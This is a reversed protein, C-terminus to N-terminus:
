ITIERGQITEIMMFLEADLEQTEVPVAYQVITCRNQFGHIGIEQEPKGLSMFMSTAGKKPKPISDLYARAYFQASLNEVTCEYEITFYGMGSPCDAEISEISTKKIEEFEERTVHQLAKKQYQEDAFQKQVEIIPEIMNVQNIYCTIEDGGEELSFHLKQSKGRELKVPLQVIFSRCSPGLTLQNVEGSLEPLKEYADRLRLEVLGIHDWDLQYFCSDESLRWGNDMMQQFFFYAQTNEAQQALNGGSGGQLEFIDNGIKIRNIHLAKEDKRNTDDLMRERNTRDERWIPCEELSPQQELICFYIGEPKRGMGVIHIWEDNICVDKGIIRVEDLRFVERYSQFMDYNM